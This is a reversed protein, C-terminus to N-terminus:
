NSWIYQAVKSPFSTVLFKLIRGIQECQNPHHTCRDHLCLDCQQRWPESGTARNLGSGAASTSTTSSALVLRSSIGMGGGLLRRARQMPNSYVVAEGSARDGPVAAHFPVQLSSRDGAGSGARAGARAGAAPQALVRSSAGTGLMRRARQLPTLAERPRPADRPGTSVSAVAPPQDSAGGSNGDFDGVHGEVHMVGGEARQHKKTAQVLLKRTRRQRVTEMVGVVMCAAWTVGFALCALLMIAALAAYVSNSQNVGKVQEVHLPIPSM